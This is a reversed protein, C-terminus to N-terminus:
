ASAAPIRVSVMGDSAHHEFGAKWAQSVLVTCGPADEDDSDARYECSPDECEVVAELDHWSTEDSADLVQWRPGAVPVDLQDAHLEIRATYHVAMEANHLRRLVPGMREGMFAVLNLCYFDEGRAPHPHAHHDEVARALHAVLATTAPEFRALVPAATVAWNHEDVVASPALERGATETQVTEQLPIL